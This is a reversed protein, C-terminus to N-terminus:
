SASVARHNFTYETGSREFLLIIKADTNELINEPMGVSPSTYVVASATPRLQRKYM